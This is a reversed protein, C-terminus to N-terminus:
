LLAQRRVFAAVGIWCALDQAGHPLGRAWSEMEALLEDREGAGEGSPATHRRALRRLEVAFLHTPDPMSERKSAEPSRESPGTLGLREALFAADSALQLSVKGQNFWDQMPVVYRGVDDWRAVTEVAEGSRKLVAVGLADKGKADTPSKLRKARAEARRAERLAVSLPATHHSFAIGASCTFPLPHPRRSPHPECLTRLQEKYARALELGAQVANEAPLLALVDDGGAYVLAGLFRSVIKPVGTAFQALLLSLQEHENDSECRAVHEGMSDGDMVLIAYYTSPQMKLHKYLQKVTHRAEDLLARYRELQDASVNYDSRLRADSLTEEYLLDGDFPWAWDGSIPRFFPIAQLKERYRALEKGASNRALELFPRSAVTSTSPFSIRGFGFRKIVGLADLRDRGDPALWPPGVKQALERWVDVADRGQMALASRRGSLSDKPGPEEAAEFARTRKAAELLAGLRKFAAAYKREKEVGHGTEMEVAAWFFELHTGVQRRWTAMWTEDFERVGYDRLADLAKRSIQEMCAKAGREAAAMAKALRDTPIRGVVKNPLSETGQMGASPSRQPYIVTGGEEEFGKIAAETLRSLLASGAWLDQTRRAEAIFSQVPGLSFTVLAESM